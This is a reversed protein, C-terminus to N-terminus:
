RELPGASVRPPPPPPPYKREATDDDREGPEPASVRRATVPASTPVLHALVEALGVLLILDGVSVVEHLVPFAIADDLPTLRDRSTQLHHRHGGPRGVVGGPGTLGAAVIAAPRVPMGGDITIVLANLCLGVGVIGMGVVRRNAVAFTVLGAYGAVLTVQALAGNAVHDAVFVLALGTLLAGWGGLIGPRHRTGRRWGLVPGTLVGLAVGVLVTLFTLM